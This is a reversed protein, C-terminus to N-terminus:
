LLRVSLWGSKEERTRGFNENRRRMSMREGKRFKGVEDATVRKGLKERERSSERETM